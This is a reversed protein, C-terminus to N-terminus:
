LRSVGAARATPFVLCGSWGSVLCSIRRLYFFDNKIGHILARSAYRTVKLLFSVFPIDNRNRQQLLIRALLHAHQGSHFLRSAEFELDFFRNSNIERLRLSLSKVFRLQDLGHGILYMIEQAQLMLLLGRIQFQHLRLAQLHLQHGEVGGDNRLKISQAQNGNEDRGNWLTSCDNMVALYICDSHNKSM